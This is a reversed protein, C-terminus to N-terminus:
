TRVVLTGFRIKQIILYPLIAAKPDKYDKVINVNQRIALQFDYRYPNQECMLVTTKDRNTHRLSAAGRRDLFHRTEYKIPIAGNKLATHVGIPGDRFYILLLSSQFGSLRFYIWSHPSPNLNM